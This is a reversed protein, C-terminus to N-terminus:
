YSYKYRTKICTIISHKTSIVSLGTRKQLSGLFLPDPSSQLSFPRYDLHITHSLFLSPFVFFSFIYFFTWDSGKWIQIYPFLKPSKQQENVVLKHKFHPMRAPRRHMTIIMIGQTVRMNLAVSINAVSKMSWSKHYFRIVKDWVLFLTHLILFAHKNNQPNKAEKWQLM